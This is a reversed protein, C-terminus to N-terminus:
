YTRPIFGDVAFRGDHACGGGGAGGAGASSVAAGSEDCGEDSQEEAACLVYGVLAVCIEADRVDERMRRAGEVNRLPLLLRQRPAGAFGCWGGLSWEVFAGAGGCDCGREIGVAAIDRQDVAPSLALEYRLDTGPGFFFRYSEAWFFEMVFTIPGERWVGGCSM